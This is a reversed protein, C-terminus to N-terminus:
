KKDGIAYLLLSSCAVALAPHGTSAATICIWAVAGIGVVGWPKSYVFGTPPVLPAFVPPDAPAPAVDGPAPAVNGPAPAVNGPAPAADGPPTAPQGKDIAYASKSLLILFGNICLTPGYNKLFLKFNEMAKEENLEDGYTYPFSM